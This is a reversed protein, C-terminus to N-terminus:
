IKIQMKKKLESFFLHIYKLIKKQLRARPAKKQEVNKRYNQVHRKKEIKNYKKQKRM